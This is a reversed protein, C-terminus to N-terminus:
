ICGFSLIYFFRNSITDDKYDVTGRQYLEPTDLNQMKTSFSQLSIGGVSNMDYLAVSFDKGFKRRCEVLIHNTIIRSFIMLPIMGRRQADVVEQVISAYTEMQASLEEEYEKNKYREIEKDHEEKKYEEFILKYYGNMKYVFISLLCFVIALCSYIWIQYKIALSSFSYQIILPLLAYTVAVFFSLILAFEDWFSIKEAVYKCKDNPNKTRIDDKLNNLIHRGIRTM